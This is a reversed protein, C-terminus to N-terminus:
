RSKRLAMAVKRKKRGSLARAEKKGKDVREKIGYVIYRVSDDAEGIAEPSLFNLYLFNFTVRVRGLGGFPM